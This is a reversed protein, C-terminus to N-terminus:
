QTQIHKGCTFLFGSFDGFDPHLFSWTQHKFWIFGGIEFLFGLLFNKTQHNVWTLGENKTLLFCCFGGTSWDTELGQHLLLLATTGQEKGAKLSYLRSTKWGPFGVLHPFVNTYIHFVMPKGLFIHNICPPYVGCKRLRKCSPLLFRHIQGM